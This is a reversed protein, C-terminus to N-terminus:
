GNLHICSTLTLCIIDSGYKWQKKSHKVWEDWGKQRLGQSWQTRRAKYKGSHHKTAIRHLRGSHRRESVITHKLSGLNKEHSPHSNKTSTCWSKNIKAIESSHGTAELHQDNFLFSSYSHMLLNTHVTKLVSMYIGLIVIISDSSLCYKAKLLHAFFCSYWKATGGAIVTGVLM